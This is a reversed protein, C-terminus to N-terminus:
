TEEKKYQALLCDSCLCTKEAEGITTTDKDEQTMGSWIEKDCKNCFFKVPM